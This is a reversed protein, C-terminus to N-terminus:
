NDSERATNKQYSIGSIFMSIQSPYKLSSHIWDFITSPFLFAIDLSGSLWIQLCSILSPNCEFARVLILWCVTPDGAVRRIKIRFYPSQGILM